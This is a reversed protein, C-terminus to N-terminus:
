LDACRQAWAAIGAADTIHDVNKREAIYDDLKGVIRPVLDVSAKKAEERKTFSRMNLLERRWQEARVWVAMGSKDLDDIHSVISACFKALGVSTKANKGVYIDESAITLSQASIASVASIVLSERMLRGIQWPHKVEHITRSNSTSVVYIKGSKRVRYKWEFVLRMESSPSILVAAGTRGGDIGFSWNNSHSTTQALQSM